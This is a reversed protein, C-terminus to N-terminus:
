QLGVVRDIAVWLEEEAVLKEMEREFEREVTAWFSQEDHVLRGVRTSLLEGLARNYTKIFIDDMFTLNM